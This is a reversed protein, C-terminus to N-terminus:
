DGGRVAEAVSSQQLQALIRKFTEWEAKSFEREIRADIESASALVQNRLSKGRETLCVKIALRDKPDAARKVLNKQELGDLLPTFSTAARGVAQALKSPNQCDEAYLARLIYWEVVTLGLPNAVEAYVRDLNRLAIDVNCWLSGNFRLNAM